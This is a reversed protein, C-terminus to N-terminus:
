PAVWPRDAAITLTCSADGSTTHTAPNISCTSESFECPEIRTNGIGHFFTVQSDGVGLDLYGLPYTQPPKYNGVRALDGAGDVNIGLFVMKTECEESQVKTEQGLSLTVRNAHGEGYIACLSTPGTDTGTDTGTDAPGSDTPGADPGTDHGTPDPGCNVAFTVALAAIAVRPGRELADKFRAFPKKKDNEGPNERMEQKLKM